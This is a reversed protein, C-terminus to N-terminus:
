KRVKGQPFECETEFAFPERVLFMDETMWLSGSGCLHGWRLGDQPNTLTLLKLVFTSYSIIRGQLPM